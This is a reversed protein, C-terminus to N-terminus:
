RVNKYFQNTLYQMEFAYVEETDNSLPVNAWQLISVTVHTLEHNLISPEPIEPFWLIIPYGARFFTIARADFSIDEPTVDITYSIQNRINNTDKTIYVYIDLDFTGGDMQFSSINNNATNNSCQLFGFLILLSFSKYSM